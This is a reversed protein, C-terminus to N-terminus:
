KSGLASVRIDAPIEWLQRLLQLLRTEATMPLTVVITDIRFWRSFEVLDDIGGLKPCGAVDGSSRDDDRDDFFGCIDVEEPGNATLQDVAAAVSDPSGILAVRRALRGARSLRKLAVSLAFRQVTVAGLTLALWAAIWALIWPSAMGTILAGLGAVIATIFCALTSRILQGAPSKLHCIDYSGSERAATLFVFAGLTALIVGRLMEYRDWAGAIEIYSALGISFILAADFIKQLRAVVEADIRRSTIRGAVNAGDDENTTETFAMGATTAVM